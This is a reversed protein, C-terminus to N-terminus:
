LWGSFLLAMFLVGIMIWIVIPPISAAKEEEVERPPSSPALPLMIRKPGYSDTCMEGRSSVTLVDPAEDGHIVYHGEPLVVERGKSDKVLIPLGPGYTVQLVEGDFRVVGYIM